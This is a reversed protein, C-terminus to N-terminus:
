GVGEIYVVFIFESHRQRHYSYNHASILAARRPVTVLHVISSDSCGSPGTWPGIGTYGTDRGAQDESSYTEVGMVM